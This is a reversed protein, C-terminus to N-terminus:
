AKSKDIELELSGARQRKGKLFEEYTAKDEVSMGIIKVGVMYENISLHQSSIQEYREGELRMKVKGGPLSVEANLIRGEGVIYYENVRISSVIFSLGTKSLDKTEGITSIDKFPMNLSGTNRDPEFTIKIPLSVQRCRGAAHKGVSKSIKSAWKRIM